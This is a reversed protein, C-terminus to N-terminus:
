VPAHTPPIVEFAVLRPFARGSRIESRIVAQWNSEREIALVRRSLESIADPHLIRGCGATSYTHAGQLILIRRKPAHPNSLCTIVGHDVSITGELSETSFIGSTKTDQVSKPPSNDVIFRLDACRLFYESVSNLQSGGVCILSKEYYDPPCADSLLVKPAGRASRAALLSQAIVFSADLEGVGTAPRSYEGTTSLARLTSVVVVAENDLRM